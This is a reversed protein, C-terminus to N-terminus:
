RARPSGDRRDCADARPAGGAADRRARERDGIAAFGGRVHEIAHDQGHAIRRAQRVGRRDIHPRQGGHHADLAVHRVRLEREIARRDRRRERERADFADNARQAHHRRLGRAAGGVVEHGPGIAALRRVLDRRRVVIRGEGRQELGRRGGRTNLSSKSAARPQVSVAPRWCPSWPGSAARRDAAWSRRIADRQLEPVQSPGDTLQKIVPSVAPEATPCWHRPRRAHGRDLRRGDRQRRAAGDRQREAVEERVQVVGGARVIKRTRTTPLLPVGCVTNVRAPCPWCHRAASSSAVTFM